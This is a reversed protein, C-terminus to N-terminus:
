DNELMGRIKPVHTKTLVTQLQGSPSPQRAYQDVGKHFQGGPAVPPLAQTLSPRMLNEVLFTFNLTSVLKECLYTSWFLCLTRKFMRSLEPFSPPPLERLFQGLKDAKGSVERFKTKLESNCQLDILEVQLLPPADQVDFSFPDVFIQFTARHMKFDVFRHDFEEQLKLIVDVYKEGSFPTGSDMLAKCAPFHCLNTQSLQAKWLVLKASFARVNDYAASVLQGQGQLKKNLVNLENTIDVLFALDMLWKSDSLVPVAVGDKEMFAKVEARLEFYRKLINGRSLWRVKTFYLVDGYDSEMEELFLVFSRHKLSRSRIQNICKVVVSMVNDFKLCKSCLAQQHIICHMAIAEEVSEVLGNKRGTMSPAGNTTIGVFRKWPLGANEIADCLQYFIEQATTQGPMPIVTLLEETVEFNDDVGRVYIALQATDTIDTTEDLAVSYVSFCKAKECLQNYIDSSLHSIREAVTNASLSINSFQGKNEPRVISAAQLICKKVFEGETFPNGAKVIMESVVYSAEVAADNERTAKKFFDQQRVLCMKLNAVWNAREDGQYKAYEEAHRATYHRKLNYEKHVAVKETCILCTPIGRHEVFFYQVEWKEQFQRHEDGVKRKVAPKSFSM